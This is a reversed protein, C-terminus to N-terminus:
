AYSLIHYMNLIYYRNLVALTQPLTFSNWFAADKETEKWRFIYANYSRLRRMALPKVMM